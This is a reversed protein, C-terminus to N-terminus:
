YSYRLPPEIIPGYAKLGVNWHVSDKCNVVITKAIYGVYSITVSDGDEVHMSFFGDKDSLVTRGTRGDTIFAQWLPSGDHGDFVRGAIEIKKDCGCLLTLLVFILLFGYKKM